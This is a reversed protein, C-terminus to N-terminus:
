AKEKELFKSLSTGTIYTWGEAFSERAFDPSDQPFTELGEHTLKLRTGKGEESLEFTVVSYGAYGEYRWSYSLKRNEVAEIVKCKHLYKEGKRGEGYFEFEFGPEAKFSSLQFYWQKMEDRDTLAKWVKSVPANYVKEIILPNNM